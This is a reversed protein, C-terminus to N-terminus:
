LMMYKNNKDNEPEQLKTYTTGAATDRKKKMEDIHYIAQDKLRMYYERVSEKDATANDGNLTAKDTITKPLYGNTRVMQAVAMLGEATCAESFANDDYPTTETIVGETLGDWGDGYAKKLANQAQALHPILMNYFYADPEFGTMWFLQDGNKILLKQSQIYAPTSKYAEGYKESKPLYLLMNAVAKYYEDRIIADDRDLQWEWPTKENESDIKFKRGDDEHSLDNARYLRLTAMEAIAKRAYYGPADSLISNMSEDNKNYQKRMLALTEAGIMAGIREEEEEIYGSIKSFDNNAFYNGTLKRLEEAGNDKNNFMM